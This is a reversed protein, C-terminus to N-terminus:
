YQIKTKCTVLFAFLNIFTIFPEFPKLLNLLNFNTTFTALTWVIIFELFMCVNSVNVESKVSMSKHSM